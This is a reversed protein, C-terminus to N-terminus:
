MSSLCASVKTPSKELLTPLGYWNCLFVGDGLPKHNAKAIYFSKLILKQTSWVLIKFVCMFSFQYELLFYFLQRQIENRDEKLVAFNYSIIANMNGSFSFSFQSELYPYGSDM